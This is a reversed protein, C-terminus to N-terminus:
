ADQNSKKKGIHFNNEIFNREPSRIFITFKKCWKKKTRSKVTKQQTVSSCFCNGKLNPCKKFISLVHEKVVFSFIETNIHRLEIAVAGEKISPIDGSLLMMKLLFVKFSKTVYYHYYLLM